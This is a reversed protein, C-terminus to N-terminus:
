WTGVHTPCRGLTAETTIADPHPLGSSTSPFGTLTLELTTQDLIALATVVSIRGVLQDLDVGEGVV